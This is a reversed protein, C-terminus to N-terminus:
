KNLTMEERDILNGGTGIIQISRVMGVGAIYDREISTSPSDQQEVLVVYGPREGQGYRIPVPGWQRTSQHIKGDKSAYDWSEVRLPPQRVMLEPPDLILNGQPSKRRLLTVGDATGQWWEEAIPKGASLLEIRSAGGEVGAVVIQMTNYIRGDSGPKAGPLDSAKGGAGLQQVFSYNWVRGKDLPVLDAAPRADAPPALVTFSTSKWPKGDCTVDVRYKGPPFPRPLSFKFDGSATDMTQPQLDTSAVQYNPPAVPGVDVAILTGTLKSFRVDRHMRFCAFIVDQDPLVDTVYVPSDDGAKGLCTQLYGTDAACTSTAGAFTGLALVLALALLIGIPPRNWSGSENM